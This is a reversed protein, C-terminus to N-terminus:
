EHPFRQNEVIYSYGIRKVGADLIRSIKRVLAPIDDERPLINIEVPFDEYNADGISHTYPEHVPTFGWTYDKLLVWLQHEPTNM